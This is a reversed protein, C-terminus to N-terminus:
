PRRSAYAGPMLGQRGTGVRGFMLRHLGAAVLAMVVGAFVVDSLFHGGQTVRVLGAAFGIITGAVMLAGSWAPAVLAVSYFVAFMSAAEGSVFSCNRRCQDSPVLPPTFTKTGGFQAVQVPRARGWQDKLLVNTVLGPGVSFCLILYLWNAARTRSHTSRQFVAVALGAVAVGCCVIFITKFLERLFLLLGSQSGSFYGGGLAFPRSVVLDLDPMLTFLAAAAVGVISACVALARPADRLTRGVSSTERTVAHEGMDGM